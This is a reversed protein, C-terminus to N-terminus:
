GLHLGQSPDILGGVVVEVDIVVGHRHELPQELDLGIQPAEGALTCVLRPLQELLREGIIQRATVRQAEAREDM